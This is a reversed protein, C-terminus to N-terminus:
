VGTSSPESGGHVACGHCVRPQVNGGPLAQGTLKRSAGARIRRNEECCGQSAPLFVRRRIPPRADVGTVGGPVVVGVTWAHGVTRGQKRHRLYGVPMSGGATRTPTLLRCRGGCTAMAVHPLMGMKARRKKKARFWTIPEPWFIHASLDCASAQFTSTFAPKDGHKEPVAMCLAHWIARHGLPRPAPAWRRGALGPPKFLFLCANSLAM